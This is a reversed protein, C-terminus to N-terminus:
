MYGVEEEDLQALIQKNKPVKKKKNPDSGAPGEDSVDM